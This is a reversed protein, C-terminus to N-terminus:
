YSLRVQSLEEAFRCVSKQIKDVTKKTPRRRGHLYHGLQTQNVGTLRQLGALSFVRCYEKLFAAPEIYFSYQIEEFEKGEQEYYDKMEAYAMNFDNITQNITKGEGLCAYSLPTDDMYASFGYESPEIFVKVQKM